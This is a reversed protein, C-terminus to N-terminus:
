KLWRAVGGHHSCTGRRNKSFSYTGDRCLATAGAPPSDYYTPSQVKDGQTNIYYKKNVSKFSSHLTISSVSEKLYKARIYGIKGNYRIPIWECDCSDLLTVSTGKPIVEIVVSSINPENRLNLNVSVEKITNQAFVSILTFLQFAFSIILGRM